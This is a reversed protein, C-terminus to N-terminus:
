GDKNGGAKHKAAESQLKAVELDTVNEHVTVQAKMGMEQQKLELEIAKLRLEEQKIAADLQMEQIQIAHKQEEAMAVREQKQADAQMKMEDQKAKLEAQKMQSQIKMQELQVKPDPAEEKPALAQKWKEILTNPFPMYEVIDPPIPVNAQALTPALQMMIRLVEQRQNPSNSVEDVIVDYTITDDIILPQQRQQGDDGTIRILRGDSIFKKMMDFIIPGRERTHRHKASFLPALITLGAEKRSEELVGPQNRDAMGIMEPNMGSTNPVADIAYNMLRDLGTPFVGADREQIGAMGGRNLKIMADPKNWDEEAQRPDALATTEVFAGGKRNSALIYMIDSFFKNSFKQPDKVARGIGYWQKKNRDRKACMARLTFGKNSPAENEQIVQDGTVYTDYYHRETGPVYKIGMQDFGDKLKGFKAASLTVLQGSQPDSVRYVKKDLYWQCRLILYAEPEPYGVGSQDNEYKWANTANHPEVRHEDENSWDPTVDKIRPWRKEADRREYRKAHIVYTADGLNRKRANVDWYMEMPDIREATILQGEPDIKYDMRSETWGMGCTIMDDFADLEEDNACCLDDAWRVAENLLSAQALDDNGRPLFRMEKKNNAAYGIISDFYPGVRNMVIPIRRKENLEAIETETWQNGARLDFMEKAEDRWKKSDDRCGQYWSQITQGDIKNEEQAM